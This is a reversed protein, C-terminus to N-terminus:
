ATPANPDPQPAPQPQPEPEPAPTPAPGPEINEGAAQALQSQVEDLGAIVARVADIDDQEVANNLQDRLGAVTVAVADTATRTQRVEDVLRTLEARLEDRLAVIAEKTQTEIRFLARLVDEMRPDSPVHFHFNTPPCETM